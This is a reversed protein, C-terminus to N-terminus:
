RRPYLFMVDVDSAPNLERRGYGGLAVVACGATRERVVRPAGEDALRFLECVVADVLDAHRAVVELGSAGGRHAAEIEAREKAIFTKVVPLLTRRLAEGDGAPPVPGEAQLLARFRLSVETGPSYTTGLAPPPAGWRFLRSLARVAHAM